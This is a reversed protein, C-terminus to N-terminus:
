AAGQKPLAGVAELARMITDWMQQAIPRKDHYRAGGILKRILMSASKSATVFTADPEACSRGQTSSRNATTRELLIGDHVLMIPVLGAECLWWTALRLM